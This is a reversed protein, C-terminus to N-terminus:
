IYGLGRLREQIIAEADEDSPQPLPTAVLLRTLASEPGNSRGALQAIAPGLDGFGIGEVPGLPPVVDGALVFFGEPSGARSHILLASGSDMQGLLGGLEEDFQVWCAPRLSLHRISWDQGAAEVEAAQEPRSRAPEPAPTALEGFCGVSLLHRLNSLRDDAVLGPFGLGKVEIVLVSM